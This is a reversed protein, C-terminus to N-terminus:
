VHARGIEMAVAGAVAAGTPGDLRRVRSAALVALAVLAILPLYMRREAGVETAIPLVSSTPALAIFFWVGLVGARPLRVAAVIALAVLASILLVYPWVAALTVPQPWGWNVALATPWIALRLYDTIAVSQNLLYTWPSIATAFGASHIRPGSWILM